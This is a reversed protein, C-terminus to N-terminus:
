CACTHPPPLAHTGSGSAKLVSLLFKSSLVKCCTKGPQALLSAEVDAAAKPAGSTGGDEGVDEDDFTQLSDAMRHCADQPSLPELWSTLFHKRLSGAPQQGPLMRPLPRAGPSQLFCARLSSAELQLFNAIFSIAGHTCFAPTLPM